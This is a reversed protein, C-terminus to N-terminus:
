CFSSFIHKEKSTHLLYTLFVPTSLKPPVPVFCFCLFDTSNLSPPGRHLSAANVSSACIRKNYYRKLVRPANAIVTIANPRELRM